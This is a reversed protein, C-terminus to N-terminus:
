KCVILLNFTRTFLFYFAKSFAIFSLLINLKSQASNCTYHCPPQSDVTAVLKYHCPPQSDVTAVLKYHCPPQSGVSTVV